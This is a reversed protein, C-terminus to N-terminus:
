ILIKEGFYSGILKRAPKACQKERSVNYEYMHTGIVNENTCVILVNKFIPTMKSFYDKLHDPTRIDCELFGLVKDDLIDQVIGDYAEEKVLRGCPMDNGLAWLYLANADFGIVKKCQKDGRIKTENTLRFAKLSMDKRAVNCAICSTLINGDGHGLKNNVRDASVTEATLQCYCLGCLYKQKMLLSDLHQITMVFKRDAKRDQEIYGLFRHQPFTFSAAPVMPPKKLNNFCTQYMVKESLGPLSVGDTFMDLGFRKFLERQARIAKVFPGVDLNSYWILLDKISKVNYHEWVFKVREYDDNSIKTGRLKSDFASKPPIQTQNLVSFDTIYEYCFIGKGLGCVCRIKDDCQCEGLYTSLYKAYSTGAPVYNSIDLMKMDHTAICMYSPNQSLLQMLKGYDIKYSGTVTKCFEFFSSYKGEGIWQNIDNLKYTKGLPVGPIDMGTLGHADIIKRILPEYKDINYRHIKYGVTKILIYIYNFMNSLLEKPEENVFCEENVTFSDCISVSVSRHENNLMTSKGHNVETPKLIAEFDYVAFDDIYQDIGKISYENAIVENPESKTPLNNSQYKSLFTSIDKICLAHKEHSLINIGYERDSKRICVAKGTDCDYTYVNIALKFCEEFEDFQLIDIPKFNRFFTLTYSIGKFSCYRKFADKVLSNIFRPDKKDGQHYAICHFVCKNNTKPFNIVSKNDKIVKPIVAESSGLAHDRFYIFIRFGTIAKLSYGSKPYNLRDALEMSRIESLVKKRIDGKFTIAVPRDFVHTNSLNPYFYIEDSPDTKTVLNYGLAINVKFANQQSNLVNELKDCFVGFIAGSALDVLDQNILLLVEGHSMHLTTGKGSEYAKVLKKYNEPHFNLQSHSLRVPKGHLVKVAQAHTLVVAFEKYM